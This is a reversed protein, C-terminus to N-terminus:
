FKFISKITKSIKKGRITYNVNLLTAALIGVLAGHILVSSVNNVSEDAENTDNTVKGKIMGVLTQMVNKIQMTTEIGTSPNAFDSLSDIEVVMGPSFIVFLVFFTIFVRFENSSLFKGFTPISSKM